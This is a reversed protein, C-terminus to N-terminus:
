AKWEPDAGAPATDVLPIPRGSKHNGNSTECHVNTFFEFPCTERINGFDDIGIVEQSFM